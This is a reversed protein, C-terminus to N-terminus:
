IFSFTAQSGLFKSRRDEFEDSDLYGQFEIWVERSIAQAKVCKIGDDTYGRTILSDGIRESYYKGGRGVTIWTSCDSSYIRSDLLISLKGCGLAHLKKNGMHNIVYELNNISKGLGWIGPTAIYDGSKKMFLEIEKGSLGYEHHWVCVPQKGTLDKLMEDFYLIESFSHKFFADFNMFLQTNNKNIFKAYEKIYQHTDIDQWGRNTHYYTFVGCDLFM